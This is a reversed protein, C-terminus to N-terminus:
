VNLELFYVAQGLILRGRRKRLDCFKCLPLHKNGGFISLKASPLSM